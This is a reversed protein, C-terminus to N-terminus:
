FAAVILYGTIAGLALGVLFVLLCAGAFPIWYTKM